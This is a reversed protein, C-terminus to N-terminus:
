GRSGSGLRRTGISCGALFILILVLAAGFGVQVSDAGATAAGRITASTSDAPGPSLANIRPDFEAQRAAAAGAPGAAGRAQSGEKVLTGTPMAMLVDGLLGADLLEKVVPVPVTAALPRSSPRTVDKSGGPTALTECYQETAATGPPADCGQAAATSDLVLLLALSSLLVVLGARSM